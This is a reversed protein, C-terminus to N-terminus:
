IQGETYIPKEGPINPKGYSFREAYNRYESEKMWWHMRRRGGFAIQLLSKDPLADEEDPETDRYERIKVMAMNCVNHCLGQPWLKCGACPDNM